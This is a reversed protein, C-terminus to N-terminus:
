RRGSRRLASPTFDAPNADVGWIYGHKKVANDLGTVLYRGSILDNQVESGWPVMADYHFIGQGQGVRWLTHDLSM